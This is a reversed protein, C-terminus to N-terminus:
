CKIPYSRDFIQGAAAFIKKKIHASTKEPPTLLQYHRNLHWVHLCVITQRISAERANCIELSQRGAMMFSGLRSTNDSTPHTPISSSARTLRSFWHLL